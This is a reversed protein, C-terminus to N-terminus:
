RLSVFEVINLYKRALLDSTLGLALSNTPCLFYWKRVNKLCAFSFLSCGRRSLKYFFAASAYKLHSM